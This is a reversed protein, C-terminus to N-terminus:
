LCGECVIIFLIEQLIVIGWMEIIVEEELTFYQLELPSKFLKVKVDYRLDKKIRLGPNENLKRKM